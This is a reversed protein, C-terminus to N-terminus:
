CFKGATVYLTSSYKLPDVNEMLIGAVVGVGILKTDNETAGMAGDLRPFPRSPPLTDDDTVNVIPM